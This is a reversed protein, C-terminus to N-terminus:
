PHPDAQVMAQQSNSSTRLPNPLVHPSSSLPHRPQPVVLVLVPMPELVPVLEEPLLVREELELEVRQRLGRELQVRVLVLVVELM